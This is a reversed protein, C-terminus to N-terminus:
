FRKMNKTISGVLTLFDTEHLCLELKSYYPSGINKFKDSLVRAERSGLDIEVLGVGEMQLMVTGSREGFPLFRVVCGPAERGIIAQRHIVVQRSWSAAAASLTWMSVVRPEAVLLSLRGDASSALLGKDMGKPGSVQSFCKPPLEIVMARATSVDLAIIGKEKCLWHVTAGLVLPPSLRNPITRIFNPQLKTQVKDGWKGHESSFISTVLNKDAVLLQFSPGADGVALLTRPYIAAAASGTRKVRTVHGTLSNVVRVEASIQGRRHIVILCGRSVMPEYFSLLESDFTEFSFPRRQEQFFIDRPRGEQFVCSAGLLLARDFGGARPALLRHFAPGLIARRIPKFTAAGRVITRTDSRALIEVLLDAPIFPPQSDATTTTTGHCPGVRRRKPSSM